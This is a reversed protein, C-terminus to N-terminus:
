MRFIRAFRPNINQWPHQVFHWNRFITIICWTTKVHEDNTDGNNRITNNQYVEVPNMQVYINHGKTCTSTLSTETGIEHRFFTSHLPVWPPLLHEYSCYRIHLSWKEVQSKTWCRAKLKNLKNPHACHKKNQKNEKKKYGNASSRWWCLLHEHLCLHLFLKAVM